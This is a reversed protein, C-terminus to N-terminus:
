TPRWRAPQRARRTSCCRCRTPPGTYTVDICRDYNTGPVIGSVNNFM